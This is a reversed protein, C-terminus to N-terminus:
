IPEECRVVLASMGEGPRVDLQVRVDRYGPRTGVVAYRGPVVEVERSQFAGLRGVRYVVVETLGDSQLTVRVPREAADLQRALESALAALKQRPESAKGAEALLKAAESRGAPTWLREPDGLLADFRGALAARAGSRRIGAAAAELSPQLAAAQQWSGRAEAWSEEREANEAARVAAQLQRDLELGALQQLATAPAEAGPRLSAARELQERAAELRGDALAELGAAMAAAFRDGSERDNIRRIAAAAGPAEADLSLAQRYAALAAPYRGASEERAAQDLQALVEDLTAVRALGRKVAPDEPEIAAALDFARSAVVADGRSLAEAGEALAAALAEERGAEVAELAQAAATWGDRAQEFRGLDLATVAAAARERAEALLAPAGLASPQADLRTKIGAYADRAAEAAKRAESSAAAQAASRRAAEAQSAAEAAAQAATQRARQEAWDPLWYLAATVIAVLSLSAAVWWRAPRGPTPAAARVATAAPAAALRLPETQEDHEGVARELEHLVAAADVPRDAPSKALLRLTLRRVREPAPQRPVPPTVPEHLVREPTPDPYFPPYATLLEHLLTGLAYLDDAVTAPEGRLRQPSQRGPTGGELRAGLPVSLEFDTLRVGGSADILVNGPKLDGHVRGAAHVQGLCRVLAEFHASWVRWPRGRFQSLDGGALYTMPMISWGEAEIPEACAVALEPGLLTAVEAARSQRAAIAPGGPHTLDVCKLALPLAEAVSTALWVQVPERDALLRQLRFRGGLNRGIDLEPTAM